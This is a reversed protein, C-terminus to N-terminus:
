KILCSSNIDDLFFYDSTEFDCIFYHNNYLSLVQFFSTMNQEAEIKIFSRKVELISIEDKYLNNIIHKNDRKSYPIDKHMKLFLFNDLAIKNIPEVLQNFVQFGYDFDLNKLFYLQKLINYLNFPNDKYLSVFEDKIDFIYFVRMIMVM